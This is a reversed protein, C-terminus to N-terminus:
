FPPELNVISYKVLTEGFKDFFLKQIKAVGFYYEDSLYAFVNNEKIQMLKIVENTFAEDGNTESLIVENIIKCYEYNELNILENLVCMLYYGKDNSIRNEMWFVETFFQKLESENKM